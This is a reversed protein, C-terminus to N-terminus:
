GHDEEERFTAVYEQGNHRFYSTPYLYKDGEIFRYLQLGDMEFDDRLAIYYIVEVEIPSHDDPSTTLREFRVSGLLIQQKNWSTVRGEPTLTQQSKEVVLPTNYYLSRKM